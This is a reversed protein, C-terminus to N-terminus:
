RPRTADAGEEDVDQRCRTHRDDGDIEIEVSEGQCGREAGPVRDETTVVRQVPERRDGRVRPHDVLGGTRRGPAIEGESCRRRRASYHRHTMLVVGVREIQAAERQLLALQDSGVGVGEGGVEGGRASSTARRWPPQDSM